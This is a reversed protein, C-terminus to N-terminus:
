GREDTLIRAADEATMGPCWGAAHLREAFADLDRGCNHYDAEAQTMPGTKLSKVLAAWAERVEFVEALRRLGGATENGTLGLAVITVTRLDGNDWWWRGDDPWPNASLWEEGPQGVYVGRNRLRMAHWGQEDRVLAGDPVDAWAVVDGVKPATV